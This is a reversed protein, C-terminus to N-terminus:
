IKKKKFLYGKQCFFHLDAAKIKGLIQKLNYLHEEQTKSFFLIDDLYVVACKWLFEKFVFNMIRQFTYPANILGFPMRLWEYHGDRTIFATKEISEEDMYIQHYGAELDLASFVKAPGITELLEDM